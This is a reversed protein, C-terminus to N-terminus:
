LPTPVKPPVAHTAYFRMTTRKDKHVLFAAVAEPSAGAEIAWTAVTHRLVGPKVTERLGLAKCAKRLAVWFAHYQLGIARKRGKARRLRYHERLANAAQAVAEGVETRKMEGDKAQPCTLVWGRGERREITGSDVFRELETEHWGTGCLVILAAKYPEKLPSKDALLLDLVAKPAVKSKRLQAPTRQPVPLDTITPDEAAHLLHKEKRLWALFAKLVAIKHPRSSTKELPPKIDTEISLTRLNKSGLVDMWWTLYRRQNDLWLKSNGKSASFAVFGELVETTLYVPRGPAKGTGQSGPKYTTPSAEFRKLEEFAARETTCRTSLEYRTGGISRRIIYTKRGQSDLRIIGGVWYGDIKPM